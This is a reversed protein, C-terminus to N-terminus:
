SRKSKSATKAWSSGRPAPAGGLELRRRDSDAAADVREKQNRM